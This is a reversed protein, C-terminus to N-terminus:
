AQPPRRFDLPVSVGDGVRYYSTVSTSFYVPFIVSVPEAFSVASHCGCPCTCFPTCADTHNKMHQAVSTIQAEGNDYTADHEDCHCPVASLLLIYLSLIVSLVKMRKDAKIRPAFTYSFNCM